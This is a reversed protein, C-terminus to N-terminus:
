NPWHLGFAAALFVAMQGRTLPADPIPGREPPTAPTDHDM